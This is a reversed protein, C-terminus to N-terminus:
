QDAALVEMQRPWVSSAGSPGNARALLTHALALMLSPECSLPTRVVSHHRARTHRYVTRRSDPPVTPPQTFQWGHCGTALPAWRLTCGAGSHAVWATPISISGLHGPQRQYPRQCPQPGEARASGPAHARLTHCKSQCQAAERAPSACVRLQQSHPLAPREAITTGVM